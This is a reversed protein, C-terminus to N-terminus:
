GAAPELMQGEDERVSYKQLGSRQLQLFYAM